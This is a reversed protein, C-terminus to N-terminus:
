RRPRLDLDDGVGLVEHFPPVIEWFALALLVKRVPRPESGRRLSMLIENEAPGFAVSAARAVLACVFEGALGTAGLEVDDFVGM